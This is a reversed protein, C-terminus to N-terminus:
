VATYPHAFPRFEDGDKGMDTRILIKRIQSETYNVNHIALTATAIVANLPTDYTNKFYLAM